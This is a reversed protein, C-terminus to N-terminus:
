SSLGLERLYDKTLLGGIIIPVVFLIGLSRYGMALSALTVFIIFVGSIAKIVSRRPLKALLKDMIEDVRPWVHLNSAWEDLSTSYRSRPFRAFSIPFDPVTYENVAFSIPSLTNM